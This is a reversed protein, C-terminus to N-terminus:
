RTQYNELCYQEQRKYVDVSRGQTITNIDRRFDLRNWVSRIVELSHRLQNRGRCLALLHTYSVPEVIHDNIMIKTRIPEKVRFWYLTEELRIPFYLTEGAKGSHPKSFAITLLVSPCIVEYLHVGM